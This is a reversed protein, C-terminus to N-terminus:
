RRSVPAATATPPPSKEQLAETLQASNFDKVLALSVSPQDILPPYNAQLYSRYAPEQGLYTKFFAVSMAEMYNQAIAPDPGVLASPLPIPEEGESPEDLTSFHSAREMMLLYRDASGNIWTFPRIQEALAPAITDNSSTVIMVPVQLQNLGTEGFVSSTIPNIAIAAKIRPDHLTVQSAATQTELARCQLLLSLNWTNIVDLCDEQLRPFNLTAGAAALATYGGFSQGLIGIQDLNFRGELASGSQNLTTITDILYRIDLPRNVFEMPDAVESARGEILAQLQADNSGPHEPVAVAFGYSALHAALYAFTTRNSGLGHSIIVVPANPTAPLYFDVPFTRDRSPDRLRLTERRYDVPGRSRVDVLEGSPLPPTLLAETRAQTKVAAVAQRTEQVITSLEDAFELSRGLDVRIGPTPFQQMVNLLTMGEPEAAALILAARLGLFGSQRAESQIVQGLRDLLIEGQPSYLFQSVAVADFGIPTLLVERLQALREPGAYQGYLALDGTIEGTRAYIELEKITISRGLLGYSLYIREAGLSPQAALLSWPLLGLSILQGLRPLLRSRRLRDRLTDGPSRGGAASSRSNM